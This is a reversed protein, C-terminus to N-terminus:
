NRSHNSLKTHQSEEGRTAVGGLENYIRKEPMSALFIDRSKHLARTVRHAFPYMWDDDRKM